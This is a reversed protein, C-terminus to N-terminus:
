GGLPLRDTPTDPDIKALEDMANNFERAPISVRSSIHAALNAGCSFEGAISRYRIYASRAKRKLRKIEDSM